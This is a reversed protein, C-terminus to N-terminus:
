GGAKENQNFSLILHTAWDIEEETPELPDYERYGENIDVAVKYERELQRALQKDDLGLQLALPLLLYFMTEVANKDGNKM